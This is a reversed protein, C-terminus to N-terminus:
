YFIDRSIVKGNRNFTCSQGQVIRGTAPQFTMPQQQQQVELAGFPYPLLFTVAKPLTSYPLDLSLYSDFEEKLEVSKGCDARRITAQLYWRLKYEEPFPVDASRRLIGPVTPLRKAPMPSYWQCDQDWLRQASSQNGLLLKKKTEPVAEWTGERLIISELLLVPKCDGEADMNPRFRYRTLIQKSDWRVTAGESITLERFMKSIPVWQTVSKNPPFDIATPKISVSVESNDSGNERDELNLFNKVPFKAIIEGGGVM